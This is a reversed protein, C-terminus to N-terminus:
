KEETEEPNIYEIEVKSKIRKSTSFIYDETKRNEEKEFETNIIYDDVSEEKIANENELSLVIKEEARSRLSTIKEMRSKMKLYRMHQYMPSARKTKIKEAVEVFFERLLFGKKDYIRIQYKGIDNKDPLGFFSLMGTKFKYDLWNTNHVVSRIAKPLNMTLRRILSNDEYFHNIEIELLGKQDILLCEGETQSNKEPMPIGIALPILAELILDKEVIEPNFQRRKCCLFGQSKKKLEECSETIEMLIQTKQLIVKPFTKSIQSFDEPTEISVFESCWQKLHKKEMRNRLNDLALKTHFNLNLKHYIIFAKIIEYIRYGEQIIINNKFCFNNSYKKLEEISLHILVCLEDNENIYQDWGLNKKRRANNMFKYITKATQYDESILLIDYEFFNDIAAQNYHPYQYQKKLFLASLTPRYKLLGVITGIAAAISGLITIIYEWSPVVKFELIDWSEFLSNKVTINLFYSKFLEKQTPSLVFSRKKADFAIWDPLLSNNEKSYAFSAEYNLEDGNLDIFTDPDLNLVTLKNVQPDSDIFQKYLTRNPNIRPAYNYVSLKLIVGIHEDAVDYASVKLYFDQLYAREEEVYKIDQINPSGTFLLRDKDFILWNPLDEDEKGKAEYRLKDGDADYFTTIPLSHALNSGLLLKMDSVSSATPKTNSIKLEIDFYASLKAQDLVKIRIKFVQSYKQLESDYQIDSKQPTGFLRKRDSDFQLWLPLDKEKDAELLSASYFLYDKDSDIFSFEKLSYDYFKGMTSGQFKDDSKVINDNIQPAHNLVVLKFSFNTKLGIMDSAIVIIDFAQYYMTKALDFTIDSTSPLGFLRKRDPEFTLWKPLQQDPNIYCHYSLTEGDPESFSFSPVSWDYQLGLILTQEFNANSNLNFIPPNNYIVLEFVASSKLLVPDSVSVSITFSKYYSNNQKFYTIDSTQPTGVFLKRDQDFNLWSPLFSDNELRAEYSLPDNDIDYFASSPVNFQYKEGLILFQTKELHSAPNFNPSHNIISLKLVFEIFLNVVDSARIVIQLLKFYKKEEDINGVDKVSPTGYLRKRDADFTLWNPINEYQEENKLSCSYILIDGDPDSFSNGPLTWDYTSGLIINQPNHALSKPEYLPANNSITLEFVASTKLLVSDSVSVSIRFSKYYSNNQKFYTVDSSQPSGLFFKRDEDFNLWSPLVDNKELHAQYSLPDNDIDSFASSPIDFQFKQGFILFQAKELQSAPNYKPSHNIIILNFLIESFLDVVDSARIVIQILKFYKQEDDINGVDKVSPTGYLRKRDADFTLWNPINEYQEGNKLSCSYILIDGDPDSFSNGPLTWDYTLGLIINQPNHALSKQEYSPANNHIVLEFVASSKLLVPDSVSVSITFSKYYSNNQKFYTMDSTQPTGIFLKRDQDFNLWSPLADGNKLRAEYSLPDNDIDYFASSPINFQYKQGFILFQAKELQSAPNYNPSHNIISLNFLFESFLDVVDSARIVIQILKFYKQEEDVNGVDKVSPTGYLRKRDADFTLWDPITEYQEGNKLYCSYKLIDGDSDSFINGPLTWDYTLGLIINQPSNTLSKIEYIPASNTITLLFSTSSEQNAIDMAIIVIEFIQFYSNKQVDKTIDTMEPKGYIINRDKDFSLWGPLDILIKSEKIKVKYTLEDGDPDVFTNPPMQWEFKDGLKLIQKDLNLFTPPSNTISLEFSDSTTSFGDFASVSIYHKGLDAITPTGYFRQTAPFFNLWSPLKSSTYTIYDLDTDDFTLADFQFDFVKYLKIKDLKAVQSQLNNVNLVPPNNLSIYDNLIFNVFHVFYHKSLVESIKDADFGFALSLAKDPNYKATVVREADTYGNVLLHDFIEVNTKTGIDNMESFDIQSAFIITISRLEYLSEKNPPTITLSLEEKDFIIWFPWKGSTKVNLLKILESSKDLSQPDIPFLDMAFIKTAQSNTAKLYPSFFTKGNYLKFSIFYPLYIFSETISIQDYYSISDSEIETVLFIRSIDRIELITLKLNSQVTLYNNNKHVMLTGINEGIYRSQIKQSALPSTVDIIALTEENSDCLFLYEKLDPDIYYTMAKIEGYIYNTLYVPNVKNKINFVLIETFECNIYLNNENYNFSVYNPNCTNQLTVKNSLSKFGDVQYIIFYKNSKSIVVFYNESPSIKLFSLDSNTLITQMETPNIKNAISYISVIGNKITFLEKENKRFLVASFIGTITKSIMNNPVDFILLGNEQCAIYSIDNEKATLINMCTDFNLKKLNLTSIFPSIRSKDAKLIKITQLGKSSSLYIHDLLNKIIMNTVYVSYSLSELLDPIDPNEINFISVGKNFNVLLYTTEPSLQLNLGGKFNQQSKILPMLFNRTDIIYITNSTLAYVYELNTSLKVDSGVGNLQLNSLLIPSKSKDTFDLFIVKGSETILIIKDQIASVEKILEPEYKYEFLKTLKWDSDLFVIKLGYNCVVLYTYNGYTDMSCIQLNAEDLYGKFVPTEFDSFDMVGLSKEHSSIFAIQGVIKLNKLKSFGFNEKLPFSKVLSPLSPDYIDIIVVIGQYLIGIIFEEDKYFQIDSMLNTLLEDMKLLGAIGKLIFFKIDPDLFGSRLSGDSVSVMYYPQNDSKDHVIQILKQVVEYQYFTEIMYGPKSRREFRCYKQNIISFILNANNAELDVAQIFNPDIVKRDGKNLILKNKLLEPKSNFGVKGNMTLMFGDVVGIEFVQFQFSPINQSNDHIIIIKQSSIDSQKFKQIPNTLDTAQYFSCFTKDSIQFRFDTNPSGNTVKIMNLTLILQAGQNIFLFNKDVIISKIGDYEILAGIPKSTDTGDSAKLKFSPRNESGDHFFKISNAQLMKKTFSKIEFSPNIINEFWCFENEEIYIVLLSDNSLSGVDINDLNIIFSEGKKLSFFNKTIQIKPIYILSVPLTPSFGSDDQVSIEFFPELDSNHVFHVKKQNLEDQTFKTITSSPASSLEFYGNIVSSIYYTLQYNKFSFGQVNIDNENLIITSGEHLNMFNTMMIPMIIFNITAPLTGAVEGDFVEIDYLPAIQSGDHLIFIQNSILNDPTFSSIPQDKNQSSSFYCNTTSKVRYILPTTLPTTLSDDVKGKIMTEDILLIQGQAITIKNILLIPKSIVFFTAFTSPPSENINDSVKFSLIPQINSGDHVIEIENQLFETKTFSTTEVDLSTKKRFFVSVKKVLIILYNDPAEIQLYDSSFTLFGENRITILKNFSLALHKIDILANKSTIEVGDSIQVDFSPKTESNDHIFRIKNTMVDTLLFSNIHTGQSDINEFFCSVSNSITLTAIFGASVMGNVVDLTLIISNGKFIAFPVLYLTPQPVVEFSLDFEQSTITADLVKLKATPLTQSSRYFIIKNLTIDQWTFVSASELPLASYAFYGDTIQSVMFNYVIKDGDDVSLMSNTIPINVTTRLLIKSVTIKPYNLVCNPDNALQSYINYYKTYLKSAGGKWIILLQKVTEILLIKPFPKVTNVNSPNIQIESKIVSYDDNYTIIETNWYIPNSRVSHYVFAFTNITMYTVDHFSQEGATILNARRETTTILGNTQISFYIGLNDGDQGMSTWSVIWKGSEPYLSKVSYITKISQVTSLKFEGIPTGDVQYRAFWIERKEPLNDQDTSYVFAFDTGGNYILFSSGRNFSSQWQITSEPDISTSTIGLKVKRFFIDTITSTSKAKNYAIVISSNTLEFINITNLKKSAERQTSSSTSGDKKYIVYTFLGADIQTMHGAFVIYDSAGQMKTVLMSWVASTTQTSLFVIKNPVVVNGLPNFTQFNLFNTQTNFASIVFGGDQFKDVMFYGNLPTIDSVLRSASIVNQDNRIEFYIGSTQCVIVILFTSSTLQIVNQNPFDGVYVLNNGGCTTAVLTQAQFHKFLFFLLFFSSFKLFVM